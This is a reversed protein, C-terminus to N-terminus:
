QQHQRQICIAIGRTTGSTALVTSLTAPSPLWQANAVPKSINNGALM